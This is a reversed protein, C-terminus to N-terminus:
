CRSWSARPTLSLSLPGPPTIQPLLRAAGRSRRVHRGRLSHKARARMWVVVVSSVNTVGLGGSEGAIGGGGGEWEKGRRENEHKRCAVQTIPARRHTQSRAFFVDQRRPASRQSVARYEYQKFRAHAEAGGM